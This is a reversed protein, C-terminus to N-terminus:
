SANLSNWRTAALRRMLVYLKTLFSSLNSRKKTHPVNLAACFIFVFKLRSTTIYAIPRILQHTTKKAEGEVVDWFSSAIFFFDVVPFNLSNPHQRSLRHFRSAFLLSSFFIIFFASDFSFAGPAQWCKFCCPSFVTCYYKIFAHTYIFRILHHTVM